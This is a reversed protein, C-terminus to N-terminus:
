SDQGSWAWGALLRQVEAAAEDPDHTTLTCHGGYPKGQYVLYGEPRTRGVFAPALEGNGNWVGPGDAFCLFEHGTFPYLRCM